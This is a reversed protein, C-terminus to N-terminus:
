VSTRSVSRFADHAWACAASLRLEDIVRAVRAISSTKSV